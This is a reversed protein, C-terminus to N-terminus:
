VYYNCVTHAFMNTKYRTLEMLLVANAKNPLNSIFFWLCMHLIESLIQKEIYLLWLFNNWLHQNKKYIM